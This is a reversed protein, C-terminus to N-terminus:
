QGASSGGGVEAAMPPPLPAAPSPAPTALGPSATASKPPTSGTAASSKTSNAGTSTSPASTSPAPTSAGTSSPSDTSKKGHFDTWTETRFTNGGSTVSLATPTIIYKVGDNDVAFTTDSTQKAAAILKAGDAIRVGRYEYAGAATMCIAVRSTQTTGFLVATDSKNCRAASDIYGAGDSPPAATPAAMSTFGAFPMALAILASAAAAALGSARLTSSTLPFSRM